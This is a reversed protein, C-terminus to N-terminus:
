RSSRGTATKRSKDTASRQGGRKKENGGDDLAAAYQSRTSAVVVGVARRRAAPTDAVAVPKGSESVVYHRPRVPTTKAGVFVLDHELLGASALRNDPQHFALLVGQEPLLYTPVALDVAGQDRGLHSVLQTRYALPEALSTGRASGETNAKLMGKRILALVHQKAANRSSWGFVEAIEQYTPTPAGAAARNRFFDLVKQQTPTPTTAQM